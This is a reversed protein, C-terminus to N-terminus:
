RAETVLNGSDDVRLLFSAGNGSRMLIGDGKGQLEVAANSGQDRVSVKERLEAPITTHPIVFAVDTNTTLNAVTVVDEGDETFYITTAADYNPDSQATAQDFIMRWEGTAAPVLVM